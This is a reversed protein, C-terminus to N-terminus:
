FSSHMPGHRLQKFIGVYLTFHDVATKLGEAGGVDLWHEGTKVKGCDGGWMIPFASWVMWPSSAAVMKAVQIFGRFLM